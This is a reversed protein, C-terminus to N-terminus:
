KIDQYNTYTDLLLLRGKGRSGALGVLTSLSTMSECLSCALTMVSMPIYWPNKGTTM